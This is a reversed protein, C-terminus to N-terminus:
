KIRSEKEDYEVGILAALEKRLTKREVRGDCSGFRLYERVKDKLADLRAYTEYESESMEESGILSM